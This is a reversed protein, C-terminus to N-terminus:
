RELHEPLDSLRLSLVKSVGDPGMSVGYIADAAEVTRRNHTIVLFQTRKALERLASTFRGVNAEDLAADVEDLVCFPAPNATLLAFLLAVATLSREGGSLASLSNIRKGPPQAEVDVGSEAPNEPDTLVLRAQGGGFFARFYEGFAHDVREFTSQFRARIEAGLEEIANRLQEEAARLDAVQTELFQYREETERLDEPAEQNVPGLRRIKRRLEEIRARAEEVDVIGAGHVPPTPDTNTGVPVVRGGSAPELGERAMEERLAGLRQEWRAVENEAELRRRQAALLREQERALEEQVQREHHELRVLEDRAPAVDLVAEERRARLTELERQLAGIRELIVQTELELNRAQLRRANLQEEIRARAKEHQERMLEIARQEGEVAALRSSAESVAALSAERRATAQALEAELEKLETLRAERREAAARAAQEAQAIRRELAARERAIDGRRSAVAQLERRLRHLREREAELSARAQELERVREEYRGEAERLQAALQRVSERARALQQQIAETRERLAEIRQPLEELERQRVLISDDSAVGGTVPGVPEFFTGDLTVVAGLGRRLIRLATAVDEVVIVRGLLTDVLPRVAPECRVLKAAVGVVGRERQLNLPYVHRVSDLPLFQARGAGREALLRVALLADDLREIVIAHLRHELAANIAAELGAPVRLQRALLGIVGPVEPPEGLSGPEVGEILAQGMVLAARTGQAIGENEAQVRELAELRGELRDLERLERGGEAEYTRVEEEVRSLRARLAETEERARVLSEEAAALAVRLDRFRRGYGILEVLLQKRRALAAEEERDLEALRAQAQEIDADAAGHRRDDAQLADQLERLRARVAAYEREAIELAERAARLAARREEVEEALALERRTDEVGSSTLSLREAELAELEHRLEERRAALMGHRERELALEQEAQALRSELETHAQDRRAIAERRRAIEEAITRLQERLRRVREEAEAEEAVFQDLAARSRVLGNQAENWLHEYYARLLELLEASLRAHEQARDAQRRLQELRPRLEELILEVRELNERTAALRDQAEKIRLRFRKVDAAEDIFARRELPTLSLVEDVLGQAMITYSNQGVEGKQLLEQVDRLRVRSGNLLYESDGSRYLRRGIEVEAFEVPLWRDENDLTLLVEAMGVAPRKSTGAFIVDELRRARLLRVNQEGLVWRIADAVNSKGSGNPGVIATIGPGFELLTRSPFSKFGQLTLRKLYM